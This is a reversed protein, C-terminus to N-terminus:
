RCDAPRTPPTSPSCREGARSRPSPTAAKGGPAPGDGQDAGTSGLLSTWPTQDVVVVPGLSVVLDVVSGATVSTAAVPRQSIVDGAAVTASNASSIVGVTLGAGTIASEAATIFASPFTSFDSNFKTLVKKM